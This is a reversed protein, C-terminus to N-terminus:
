FNTGASVTTINKQIKQLKLFSNKLVTETVLSKNLFRDFM